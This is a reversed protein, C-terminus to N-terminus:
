RWFRRRRTAGTAPFPGRQSREKAAKPVLVNLAAGVREAESLEQLVQEVFGTAGVLAGQAIEEALKRHDEAM